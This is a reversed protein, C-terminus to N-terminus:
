KNFYEDAFTHLSIRTQRFWQSHVALSPASLGRLVMLSLWVKCGLAGHPCGSGGRPVDLGEM